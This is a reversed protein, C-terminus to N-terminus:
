FFFALDNRKPFVRKARRLYLDIARKFAASSTDIPLTWLHAHRAFYIAIRCVNPWRCRDRRLAHVLVIYSVLQRVYHREVIAHKTTKIDVITDGLVLDCDAGGVIKSYKGFDPNLRLASPHSFIEFPVIRLMRCVDRAVAPDGDTLNEDIYGARYIADLKALRVAHEALRLYTSSTPKVQRLFRTHFNKAMSFVRIASREVNEGFLLDLAHEAIWPKAVAHRFRRQLEFRLVYDFATGTIGHRTTNPLVVIDVGQKGRFPPIVTDLIRRITHDEILSSVSM